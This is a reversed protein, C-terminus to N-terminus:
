SIQDLQDLMHKDQTNRINFEEVFSATFIWHYIAGAIYARLIDTLHLCGTKAPRLLSARSLKTDFVLATLDRIDTNSGSDFELNALQEPDIGMGQLFLILAQEICEKLNEMRDRLEDMNPM